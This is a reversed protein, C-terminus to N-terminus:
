AKAAVAYLVVFGLLRFVFEKVMNLIIYAAVLKDEKISNKKLLIGNASVEIYIVFLYHILYLVICSLALIFIIRNLLFITAFLILTFLVLFFTIMGFLGALRYGTVEDHIAHSYEHAFQIYDTYNVIKKKELEKTGFNYSFYSAEKYKVSGDSLMGSIELEHANEIERNKNINYELLLIVMELLIWIIGIVGLLYMM